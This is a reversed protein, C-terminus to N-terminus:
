NLSFVVVNLALEVIIIFITSGRKYKTNKRLLTVYVLLVIMISLLLGISLLINSVFQNIILFYIALIPIIMLYINKNIKKSM